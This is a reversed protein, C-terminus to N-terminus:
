QDQCAQTLIGILYRCDSTGGLAMVRMEWCLSRGGLLWLVDRRPFLLYYVHTVVRRRRGFRGRRRSRSRSRSMTMVVAMFGGAMMDSLIGAVDDGSVRM